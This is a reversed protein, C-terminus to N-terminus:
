QTAQRSASGVIRPKITEGEEHVVREYAYEDPLPTSYLSLIWYRELLVRTMAATFSYRSLIERVRSHRRRLEDWQDIAAKSYPRSPGSVHWRERLIKESGIEVQRIGDILEVVRAYSETDKAANLWDPIVAGDKQWGGWEGFGKVSGSDWFRNTVM